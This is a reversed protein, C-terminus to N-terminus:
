LSFFVVVLLVLGAALFLGHIISVTLANMVDRSM